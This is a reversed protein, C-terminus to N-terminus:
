TEDLPNWDVEVVGRDGIIKLPEGAYAYIAQLHLTRIKASTLVSFMDEPMHPRLTELTDALEAVRDPHPRVGWAKAAKRFGAILPDTDADPEDAVIFWPRSDSM